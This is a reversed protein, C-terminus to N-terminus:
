LVFITNSEIMMIPVHNIQFKFNVNWTKTVYWCLISNWKFSKRNLCCLQRQAGQTNKEFVGKKSTSIKLSGGLFKAPCNVHFWVRQLTDVCLLLLLNVVCYIFLKWIMYIRAVGLSTGWLAWSKQDAIFFFELVDLFMKKGYDHNRIM